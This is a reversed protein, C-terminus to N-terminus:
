PAATATAVEAAAAAEGAATDAELVELAEALHNRKIHTRMNGLQAFKHDCFPCSHPRENQHTRLHQLMSGKQSFRRDCFSCPYPKEGTHVRMHRTLLSPKNFVAGCQPCRCQRQSQRSATGHATRMHRELQPGRRFEQSCQSCSFQPAVLAEEVVAQLQRADVPAPAASEAEEEEPEPESEPEPEPEPEPPAPGPAAPLPQLAELGVIRGESDVQLQVRLEQDHQALQLQEAVAPQLQLLPGAAGGASELQLMAAGPAAAAAGPSPLAGSSLQSLIEQCCM